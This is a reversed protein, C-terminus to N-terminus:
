VRVNEGSSSSWSCSSKGAREIYVLKCAPVHSSHMNLHYHGSNLGLQYINTQLTPMKTYEAHVHMCAHANSM